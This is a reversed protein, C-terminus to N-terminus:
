DDSRRRLQAYVALAEPLFGRATAYVSQAKEADYTHSTINRQDRYVFWPSADRILGREAARRMLSSFSLADIESPVPAEQELQRKIMRWCLEYTFEFRQIVADRLEEDAPASSARQIGRELSRVAKDLATLDLKM